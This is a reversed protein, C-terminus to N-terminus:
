PPAAAEVIAVDPQASAIVIAAGLVAAGGVGQTVTISEGLFIAAMVVASAAELTMVVAVRTAGIRDMAAFTLSFALATAVGYGGLELLHSSPNVLDGTVAGRGLSVVAAALAVLCAVAMPDAARGVEHGGLLYGCFAAAAALAFLVGAATISVRGGGIVVVATGASSLALAVLTSRHLQERGRAVEVVTVMAPYVYFVLAVAAATGRELASFFLASQMSYWAGLALGLLASRRSPALAVGRVRLVALLILGGVAFRGALSTASGLGAEALDRGIVVTVGYSVAGAAALLVGARGAGGPRDTL